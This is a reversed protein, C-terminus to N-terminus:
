PAKSPDNPAALGVADEDFPRAPRSRQLAQQLENPRVPKALYDDMGAALCLERDGQMANATMAIIHVHERHEEQERARIQRTAEYGDMEPMQCDMLVVDYPIQKLAQMAEAGNAVADARYGLKTLMRIAVKQNIPNDEALLVRLPREQDINRTSRIQGHTTEDEATKRVVTCLVTCLQAAEIPKALRAAFCAIESDSMRPSVSSVLVLPMTQTAPLNKLIGALEVGDM